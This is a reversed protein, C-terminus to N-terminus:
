DLIKSVIYRSPWPRLTVKQLAKWRNLDHKTHRYILYQDLITLVVTGLIHGLTLTVPKSNKHEVKTNM